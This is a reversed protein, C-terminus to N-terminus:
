WTCFLSLVTAIELKNEDRKPVHEREKQTTESALESSKTWIHSDGAIFVM